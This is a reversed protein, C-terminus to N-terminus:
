DYVDGNEKIKQDEYLAVERMYYRWSGAVNIDLSGGGIESRDEKMRWLDRRLNNGLFDNYTTYSAEETSPGIRRRAPETGKRRDLELLCCLLAGYISDLNR